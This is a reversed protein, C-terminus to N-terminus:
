SQDDDIDYIKKIADIEAKGYDPNLSIRAMEEHRRLEKKVISKEMKAFEVLRKKKYPVIFIDYIVANESINDLDMITWYVDM